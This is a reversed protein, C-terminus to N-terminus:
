WSTFCTRISICVKFHIIIRITVMLQTIFTTIIDYVLHPYQILKLCQSKDRSWYCKAFCMLPGCHTNRKNRRVKWRLIIFRVQVDLVQSSYLDCATQSCGIFQTLGCKRIGTLHNNATLIACIRESALYM